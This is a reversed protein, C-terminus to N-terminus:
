LWEFMKVKIKRKLRAHYFPNEDIQEITGKAKKGNGVDAVIVPMIFPSSIMTILPAMTDSRSIIYM